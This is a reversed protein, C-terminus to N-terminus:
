HSRQAPRVPKEAEPNYDSVDVGLKRAKEAIELWRQQEQALRHRVALEAQTARQQEVRTQDVGTSALQEKSKEMEAREESTLSPLGLHQDLTALEDAIEAGDSELKQKDTLAQQLELEWRAVKAQQLELQLKFVDAKLAKVEVALQRLLAADTAQNNPANSSTTQASAASALLLLFSIFTAITTIRKM